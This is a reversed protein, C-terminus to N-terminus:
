KQEHISELLDARTFLLVRMGDHLVMSDNLLSIEYDGTPIGATVVSKPSEILFSKDQANFIMVDGNYRAEVYSLAPLELSYGNFKVVVPELFLYFDEGDFLFGRDVATEKERSLIRVNGHECYVESFLETKACANSRPAYYIMEGPIVVASLNEFYIPLTTSFDAAIESDVIHTNGESDQKLYSGMPVKAKSGGYYQWGTEPLTYQGSRDLFSPILFALLLVAVVPILVMLNISKKKSKKHATPKPSSKESTGMYKGEYSVLRMGGISKNKKTSSM